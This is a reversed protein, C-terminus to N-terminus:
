LTVARRIAAKRWRLIESENTHYVAACLAGSASQWTNTVRNAIPDSARRAEEIQAETAADVPRRV